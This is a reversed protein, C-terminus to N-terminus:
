PRQPYPGPLMDREGRVEASRTSRERGLLEWLREGRWSDAREAFVAADLRALEEVLQPSGVRAEIPHLGNIHADGWHLRGWEIL